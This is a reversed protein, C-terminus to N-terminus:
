HGIVPNDQAAKRCPSSSDGPPSRAHSGDPWGGAPLPQGHRGRHCVHGKEVPLEKHSHWLLLSRHRTLEWFACVRGEM